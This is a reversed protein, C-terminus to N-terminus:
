PYNFLIHTLLKVYSRACFMRETFTLCSEEWEQLILQPWETLYPVRAEDILSQNKWLSVASTQIRQAKEELTELVQFSCQM